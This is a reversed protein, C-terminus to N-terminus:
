YVCLFIIEKSVIEKQSILLVLTKKFFFTDKNFYRGNLEKKQGKDTLFKELIFSSIPRKSM